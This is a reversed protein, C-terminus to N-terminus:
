GAAAERLALARALLVERLRSASDGASDSEFREIHDGGLRLRALVRDADGARLDEVV